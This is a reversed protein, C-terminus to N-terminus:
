KVSATITINVTCPTPYMNSVGLTFSSENIDKPVSTAVDGNIYVSVDEPSISQVSVSYTYNHQQNAHITVEQTCIEKVPCTMHNLYNITHTLRQSLDHKGLLTITFDRGTSPDTTKFTTKQTAIQGSSIPIWGELQELYLFTDKPTGYVGNKGSSEPTVVWLPKNNMRPNFLIYGTTDTKEVDVELPTADTSHALYVGEMWIPAGTNAMPTVKWRYGGNEPIYVVPIYTKDISRYAGQASGSGGIIPGRGDTIVSLSMTGAYAESSISEAHGFLPHTLTLLVSAYICLRKYDIM